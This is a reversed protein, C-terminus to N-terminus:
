RKRWEKVILRCLVLVFSAFLSLRFLVYEAVDLYHGVAAPFNSVPDVPASM